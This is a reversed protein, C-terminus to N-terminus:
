GGDTKHRCSIGIGNRKSVSLQRDSGDGAIGNADLILLTLDFLFERLPDIQVGSRHLIGIHFDIDIGLLLLQGDLIGSPAHDERSRFM